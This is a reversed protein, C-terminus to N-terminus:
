LLKEKWWCINKELAASIDYNKINTITALKKIDAIMYPPDNLRDPIAGFQCNEPKKLIAFIKAAIEKLNYGNGSAVNVPGTLVSDSIEALMRGCTETDLFDRVQMGSSCKAAENKLASIILYPVIRAPDEHPGFLLFLKAWVYNIQSKELWELLELKAKGYLTHPICPDSERWPNEDKRSWDYEACSGIGIIRKGGSEAFIRFLNKSAELWESNEPAQWFKGHEAYWALHL